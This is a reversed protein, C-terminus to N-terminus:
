FYVFTNIAKTLGTSVNYHSFFLLVNVTTVSQVGGEKFKKEMEKAIRQMKEDETLSDPQEQAMNAFSKKSRSVTPDKMTM